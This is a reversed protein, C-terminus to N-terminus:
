RRIVQKIGRETQWGAHRHRGAVPHIKRQKEPRDGGRAGIRRLM